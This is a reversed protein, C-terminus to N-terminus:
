PSAVASVCASIIAISLSMFGCGIVSSFVML